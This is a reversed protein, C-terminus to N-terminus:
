ATVGELAERFVRSIGGKEALTALQSLAAKDNKFEGVLALAEEVGIANVELTTLGDPDESLCGSIWAVQYGDDVLKGAVFQNAFRPDEKRLTDLLEEEVRNIGPVLRLRDGYKTPHPYTSRIRRKWSM